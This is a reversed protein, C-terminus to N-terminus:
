YHFQLDRCCLYVLVKQTGTFGLSFLFVLSSVISLGLQSWFSIWSSQRMARAARMLSKRAREDLLYQPRNDVQEQFQQQVEHSVMSVPLAGTRVLMEQFKLWLQSSNQIGGNAMISFRRGNARSSTATRHPRGLIQFSIVM